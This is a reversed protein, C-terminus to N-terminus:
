MVKVHYEELGDLNYNFKNTKNNKIEKTNWQTDTNVNKIRM